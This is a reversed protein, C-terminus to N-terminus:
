DKAKIDVSYSYCINEKKRADISKKIIMLDSIDGTPIRLKEATRALLDEEKEDKNLKVQSVRIM